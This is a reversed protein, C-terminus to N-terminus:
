MLRQLKNCRGLREKVDDWSAFEADITIHTTYGHITAVFGAHYITIMRRYRTSTKPPIPPQLFSSDKSLVISDKSPSSLVIKRFRYGLAVHRIWRSVFVLSRIDDFSTRYIQHWFTLFRLVLLHISRVMEFLIKLVDWNRDLIYIPSISPNSNTSTDPIGKIRNNVWFDMEM